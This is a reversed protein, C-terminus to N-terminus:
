GVLEWDSRRYVVLQLAGQYYGLHAMKIVIISGEKPAIQPRKFHIKIRYEGMILVGRGVRGKINYLVENQQLEGGKLAEVSAGYARREGRGREKLPYAVTIEKLGYYNHLHEVQLDYRRGEKLRSACGYLFIGRGQPTQKILAHHRSRFLVMVDRLIMPSVLKSLAYLDEIKGEIPVELLHHDERRKTYPQHDFSAYLPLHDSYGRGQHHANKIQWRDIYGKKHFLYRRKLLAFSGDIYDIGKGDFMSPPLLIHDLTSKRGFFTYNWRHEVPLELWLNYHFGRPLAEIERKQVMDEGDYSKLIHNIGTIGHSDDLKPDLALYSKYHSNLDGVIVYESGNELSAIRHSLAKAQQIRLSEVGGYAPSKWHNVFLWLSDGGIMLRVQLIPRLPISANIPIEKTEIIPYQSLLAVQVTHNQSQGITYYRYGCGVMELRDFLRKLVAENEIEQLAVIQAELDCIVESIRNLKIELFAPSWNSSQSRYAEYERGQDTTDFLNQVNYTAVRFPTAVLTSSLWFCVFAVSLIPV